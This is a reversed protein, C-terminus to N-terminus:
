DDNEILVNIKRVALRRGGFEEVASERTVTDFRDLNGQAIAVARKRALGISGHDGATARVTGRAAGVYAHGSYVKAQQYVRSRETSKADFGAYDPFSRPLLGRRDLAVLAKAAREIELDTLKRTKMRM